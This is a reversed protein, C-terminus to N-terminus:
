EKQSRIRVRITDPGEKIVDAETGWEKLRAEFEDGVLDVASGDDDIYNEAFIGNYTSDKESIKFVLDKGPGYSIDPNLNLLTPGVTVAAGLLLAGSLLIYALKSRM